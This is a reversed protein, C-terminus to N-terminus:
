DREHLACDLPSANGCNRHCYSQIHRLVALRRTCYEDWKHHAVVEAHGEVAVKLPPDNKGRKIMEYVCSFAALDFRKGNCPRLSPAFALRNFLQTM